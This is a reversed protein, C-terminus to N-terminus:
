TLIADRLQSIFLIEIIILLNFFKPGLNRSCNMTLHNRLYWKGKSVGKMLKLLCEKAKVTKITAHNYVASSCASFYAIYPLQNLILCRTVNKRLLLISVAINVIQKYIKYRKDRREVMKYCFSEGQRFIKVM